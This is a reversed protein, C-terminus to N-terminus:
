DDGDAQVQRWAARYEDRMEMGQRRKAEAVEEMAKSKGVEERKLAAIRAHQKDMFHERRARGGALRECSEQRMEEGIQSKHERMSGLSIMSRETLVSRAAPGSWREPSLKLRRSPTSAARSPSAVRSTTTSPGAATSATDPELCNGQHSNSQGMSARARIVFVTPQLSEHHKSGVPCGPDRRRGFHSKERQGVEIKTVGKEPEKKAEYM